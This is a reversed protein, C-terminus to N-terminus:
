TYTKDVSDSLDILEIGKTGNAECSQLRTIADRRSFLSLHAREESLWNTRLPRLRDLKEKRERHFAGVRRGHYFPRATKLDLELIGEENITPNVFRLTTEFSVGFQHALIAARIQRSKRPGTSTMPYTDRVAARQPQIGITQTERDFLLVAHEACNLMEWAVRSLTIDGRRNMTAQPSYWRGPKFGPRCIEWNKSM